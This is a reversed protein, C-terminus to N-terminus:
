GRYEFRKTRTIYDHVSRFLQMNTADDVSPSGYILIRVDDRVIDLQSLTTNMNVRQNNYLPCHLLYHQTDEVAGCICHPRDIINKSYLHQNLGSCRTRLRTHLIQPERKGFYYYIPPSQIDTNMHTKFINLSTSNRIAPSLLNWAQVTAPLFSNQYLQTRCPITSTNQANRLNYNVTDGVDAPVLSSLYFPSIRNRMKYFLTLKHKRRRAKLTVWGTERYLAEFSVLKTAGTVIRAAEIQIKELDQEEYRTCNDWIVDAYELAPRIFSTYMTELTQRSLRYKLKRMTSIRTWAKSKSNEIHTHWTGNNTLSLGLHKHHEVEQIVTDNMLLPPHIDRNLRRSILLSETKTPNFTVMWKDAWEQITALDSNLTVAAQEPRDVTVYLSTDDAFLKMNSHINNVIDNIYVLFLLPGLISGQPVGAYIDTLDSTSGPLVVRQSRGHLYNTLWGLLPGTIGAAELKLILGRHWVKDFAKSIDCFVARVDKGDDLAKCFSNYIDVLQNVTSDKPVFGSQLPSIIDNSKLFNFIRNHLIKEMVKEMTCLLSIPRYNTIDSPDGKKLIACVSAQKWSVPVKVLQLSYNFLDCLPKSLEFSLEKLVRNNISDPGAAKGLKLSRLNSQVDAPTISIHQLKPRNPDIHLHPLDKNNDPLRTQSAFFTNLLKAKELGDSYILDNHKLPPICSSGAPKIFSKM